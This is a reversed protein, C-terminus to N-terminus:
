IRNYIYIALIIGIIAFLNLPFLYWIVVKIHSALEPLDVIRKLITGEKLLQSIARGVVSGILMGIFGIFFYTGFSGRRAM